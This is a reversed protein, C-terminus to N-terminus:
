PGDPGCCFICSILVASFKRVYNVAMAFIYDEPISHLCLRCIMFMLASDSDQFSDCLKDDDYESKILYRLISMVFIWFISVCDTSELCLCGSDPATRFWIDNRMVCSYLFVRIGQSNPLAQIDPSFRFVDYSMKPWKVYAPEVHISTSLDLTSIYHM